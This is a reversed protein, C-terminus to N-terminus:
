DACCGPGQHRSRSGKSWGSKRGGSVAIRHWRHAIKECLFVVIGPTGKQHLEAVLATDFRMQNALRRVRQDEMRRAEQAAADKQM